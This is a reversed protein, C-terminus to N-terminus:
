LALICLCEYLYVYKDFIFTYVGCQLSIYTDLAVAYIASFRPTHTHTHTHINVLQIWNYKTYGVCMCFSLPLDSWCICMKKCLDCVYGSTHNINLTIQMNNLESCWTNKVMIHMSDPLFPKWNKNYIFPTKCSFFINKKRKTKIDSM